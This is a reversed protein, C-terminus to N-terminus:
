NIHKVTVLGSRLLALNMATRTTHQRLDVGSKPIKSDEWLEEDKFAYTQAEM